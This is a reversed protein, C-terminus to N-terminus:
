SGPDMHSLFWNKLPEQGAMLCAVKPLPGRSYFKMLKEAFAELEARCFEPDQVFRTEPGPTVILLFVQTVAIKREEKGARSPLM